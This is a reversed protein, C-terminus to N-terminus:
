RSRNATLGALSTWLRSVTGMLKEMGGEAELTLQVIREIAEVQCGMPLLRVTHAEKTGIVDAAQAIVDAILGPTHTLTEMVVGRVDNLGLMDGIASEEIVAVTSEAVYRDFLASLPSYHVRMLSAIDDLSLGRVAFSGGPFPVEATAPKYNQLGM